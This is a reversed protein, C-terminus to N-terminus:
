KEVISIFFNNWLEMKATWGRNRIFGLVESPTKIPESRYANLIAEHLQSLDMVPYYFLPKYKELYDYHIWSGHVVKKGCLVYEQLSSNGGDTTQIHIFMDTGQRLYFLDAVSLYDEYFVANLGLDLCRSKLSEVYEKKSTGFTSGYTVPFLLVLETPLQSRIKMIADIILGHRQEEFANYGCTIVYRNEIGLKKKADDTSIEGLHANIYDITESGWTLSHFKGKDVRMENILTEGIDGQTGVTIYDAKHFVRTLQKRKLKGELRLVDSGWPTIVVSTSMRHMYRMLYSMFFKPYHINVIDYHRNRALARIQLMSSFRNILHNILPVSKLRSTFKELSNHTEEPFVGPERNTLLSIRVSPNVTKLNRIFRVIHTPHCSIGIILISYDQIPMSSDFLISM